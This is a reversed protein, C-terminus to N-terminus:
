GILTQQDDQNYANNRTPEGASHHFAATKSQNAVQDHTQDARKDAIPQQRTDTDVEAAADDRQNQVGEYAGHHKEQQKPQNAASPASPTPSSAPLRQNTGSVEKSRLLRPGTLEGRCLLSGQSHVPTISARPTYVFTIADDWEAFLLM